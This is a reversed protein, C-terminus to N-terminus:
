QVSTLTGTIVSGAPSSQIVNAASVTDALVGFWGASGSTGSYTTTFSCNANVSYTGTFTEPEILGGYSTQVSSTFNGNGDFTVKGVRSFLGAPALVWSIVTGSMNLAYVGNLNNNTCVTQRQKTLMIRVDTGPPNLLILNMVQGDNALMGSFTFPIPTSSGPFPIQLIVSATCDPAITYTGGYQEQIITGDLSLTTTIASNGNGDVQVRGVRATPGAPIGPPPTIFSGLVVASYLGSFDANSCSQAQGTGAAAMCMALGAIFSFSTKTTM